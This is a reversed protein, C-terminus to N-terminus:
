ALAHREDGAGLVVVNADVLSVGAEDLSRALAPADTNHGIWEGDSRILTNVAGIAHAEPTVADLLSMVETKHPVTVNAGQIGLASLGRIADGLMEPHVEFRVYVADIGLKAFAANHVAPSRSHAVPFALIGFLQTM